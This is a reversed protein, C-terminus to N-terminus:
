TFAAGADPQGTEEIGKIDPPPEVVEAVGGFTEDDGTPAATELQPQLQETKDPCGVLLLVSCAVTAVTTRM